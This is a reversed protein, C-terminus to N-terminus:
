LLATCLITALPTRSVDPQTSLTYLLSLNSTTTQSPGTLENQKLWVAAKLQLSVAPSSQQLRSLAVMLQPPTRLLNIDDFFGYVKAGTEVSVQQLTDRMYVCFLLASLPDGQRVGPASEIM